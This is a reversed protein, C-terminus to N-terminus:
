VKQTRLTRRKWMLYQQDVEGGGGAEEFVSKESGESGSDMRTKPKESMQSGKNKNM